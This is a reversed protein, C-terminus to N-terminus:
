SNFSEASRATTKLVRNDANLKAHKTGIQWPLM